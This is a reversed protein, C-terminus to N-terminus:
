GTTETVRYRRADRDLAARTRPGLTGNAPLKVSTQYRQVARLLPTTFRNGIPWRPPLAQIAVMQTQVGRLVTRRVGFQVRGSPDYRLQDGLVGDLSPHRVPLPALEAVRLVMTARNGNVDEAVLVHRVGASIAAATAGEGLPRGDITIRRVGSLGDTVTIAAVVRGPSAVGPATVRLIPPTGDIVVRDTVDRSNGVMDTARVVVAYRGDPLEVGKAGINQPATPGRLLRVGAVGTEPDVARARLINRRVMLTLDPPRDDVVVDVNQQVLTGDRAMVSVGIRHTGPMAFQGSFRPGVALLQGDMRWEVPTVAIGDITATLSATGGPKMMVRQASITLKPPLGPDPMVSYPSSADSVNGAADVALVTVSRTVAPDLGTIDFSPETTTGVEQGDLQVVYHQVGSTTVITASPSVEGQNGALDAARVTYVHETGYDAPPTWRARLTGRAPVTVLLGAPADPASIDTAGADTLTTTSVSGLAVGDRRVAYTAAGAVADWNVRQPWGTGTPPAPRPPPTRDIWVLGSPDPGGAHAPAWASRNGVLDVGRFQVLTQGEGTVTVSAGAVASTWTAGGNTSTRYEYGALGATADTSGSATVTVDPTNLPTPQAGSLTPLTPATADSVVTRGPSQLSLNGAGDYAVVRYLHTGDPSTTDLFLPMSTTGVQFGDRLVRYGALGSGGTDTVASWTLSPASTPSSASPQAPTSPTTRDIRVIGEPSPAGAWASRNSLADVSRFQLFTEGQASIVASAGATPASWSGGGDGSTRYEYSVADAGGGGASVTVSVSPAWASSGGSVVPANLPLAAAPVVLVIACAIVAMRGVRPRRRPRARARRPTRRIEPM